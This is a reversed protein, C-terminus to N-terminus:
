ASSDALSRYISVLRRTRAEPKHRELILQHSRTKLRDALGPEILLRTIAASM